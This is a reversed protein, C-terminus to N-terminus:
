RERLQWRAQTQVGQFRPQWQGNALERLLSRAEPHKGAQTLNHARDWLLQANTPEVAFAAAFARDALDHDGKRQLKEALSVWPGTEAPRMGIPTTLYDWVLDREGLTQLVDAALQCATTADSDLARWRDATRIVKARFDAPPQVQLAVMAEALNKYHNLLKEYDRRVVKLDIVEPLNRYEEELARELCALERPKQERREALHAALRWLGPQRALGPDALLGQLLEDAKGPQGSKAHFAIAALTLPLRDREDTARGLALALLHNAQPTDDLQACQRILAFLAPWQRHEVLRQANRRLLGGWLDTDTGDALLVHRFDGDIPPLVGHRRTQQYLAHFFMRATSVNGAKFLCRAHEYRATYALGPVHEFRTYLPALSRYLTVADDKRAPKLEAARDQMLTLLAWGFFSHRNQEVYAAARNLEAERQEASGELVKPGQWRQFLAHTVVLHKLFGDPWQMSNVALQSAHKRLVPSTYLALYQALPENAHEALVDGHEADLNHGISALLVYYGINKHERPLLTDRFLKAAEDANGAGYHAAFLALAEETRLGKKTNSEINLTKQVHEVSRYPLNLVVLGKHDPKLDPVLDVERKRGDEDILQRQIVQNGPMRVAHREVLTGDHGFVLHARLYERPNGKRDRAAEAGHPIIAVTREDVLKVDAGHALDEAPLVLWPLLRAIDARHFRSVPRRAGIGLDPYLHLLTDGDCVVRERLGPVLTRSYAYRGQGDASLKMGPLTVTRWGAARAKDILKRAADDIQGNQIPPVQAEAEVVAQVDALSTNMGPAYAALDFFLREDPKYSPRQYLLGTRSGETGSAPAPEALMTMGLIREVSGRTIGGHVRTVNLPSPQNTFWIREWENQIVRLDESNNLVISGTLGADSNVGMGFLLSGHRTDEVSVLIDRVPNDPDLVEITPRIGRGANREFINLRSLNAEGRRVDPYVLIQGPYVPAQRLIVNQRTVENGVVITQPGTMPVVIRLSRDAVENTSYEGGFFGLWFQQQGGNLRSGLNSGPQNQSRLIRSSYLMADISPNDPDFQRMRLAAQEAERYRGEKRMRAYYQALDSERLFSRHSHPAERIGEYYLDTPILLDTASDSGNSFLRQPGQPLLQVAYKDEMRETVWPPVAKRDALVTQLVQEASPKQNKALDRPDPPMGPLPEYVVDIRAPCRYMAWHDKRGRDVKFQEYMAENELVLLSTFPTMVYMAKSLAIIEAKHKGADEALLREIELRVWTRPLYGANGTADKVPLTREFKQGNVTGRITLSEPLDRGVRAIACLEEGQAVINAVGLFPVSGAQVQVDLLRPLDLAAALEFARWSISEDPNIQTFTGDSREAAAKMFSRAWRRGVGIGVYRTGAPLRKALVDDRREGMAAIGSGVHVLYPNKLARLMPEAETLARGLDLAGILHVSELFAVAAEVNSANVPRAQPALARTRTGATLVNFTDGPEAQALLTRVIEIQARALLPDRDGSSEFLFVWDRQQRTAQGPLEPRYRLMLYKAGEHEATSFRALDKNGPNDSVSLVIDREIRVNKDAARLLLDNGEKKATLTHSTSSWGLAAGHKVCAQFSWDRVSGLSHGAPFRYQATGYSSGLKQSYSLVIRKEQRAELPFVRMKFTSGDVWELLAPDKQRTVIEEYVNRAFDREAMGGEMLVGDVYMALRSLSADPPLPFHFTGELRRAEHNFYTQDITTRAFGDEIHVDVHYKRLSLNAAQGSTDICVLAGGAHKSKPVLPTEADAMLDRTWDLFQAGQNATPKAADSALQQGARIPVDVGAVKVQGGIVAVATGDATARVNFRAAMGKMERKPTAVTFAADGPGSEVYVEGRILTLRRAEDLKVQTNQNVFLVAGDPLVLRQRQGVQTRVEAGVQLSETEPAALRPRSTLRQPAPEASSGHQLLLLAALAVLGGFVWPFRHRWLCSRPM